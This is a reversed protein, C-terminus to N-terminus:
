NSPVRKVIAPFTGIIHVKGDKIEITKIDLGEMREFRSNLLDLIEKEALEKYTQPIPIIGIKLVDLKGTLTKGKMDGIFVLYIPYKNGQYIVILSVEAKKTATPPAPEPFVVQVQDIPVKPSNWYNILASAEAPTYTVDVPVEGEYVTEMNESPAGPKFEVKVNAKKLANVFDQETYTVGLDQPESQGGTYAMIIPWALFTSACCCCLLLVGM